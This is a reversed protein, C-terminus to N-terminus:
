INTYYVYIWRGVRHLCFQNDSKLKRVEVVERGAEMLRRIGEGFREEEWRKGPECAREGEEGDRM